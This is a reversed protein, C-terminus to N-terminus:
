EFRARLEKKAQQWDLSEIKGTAFEEETKRLEAEHWAPSSFNADDTALDGWLVEILQLKESPTLNRLDAIGM